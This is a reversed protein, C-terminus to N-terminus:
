IKDAAGMRALEIGMADTLKDFMGFTAFNLSKAALSAMAPILKATIAVSLAVIAAEAIPLDPLVDDLWATFQGLVAVAEGLPPGLVKVLTDFAATVNSIAPVVIDLFAKAIPLFVEGVHAMFQGISDQLNSLKGELTASQSEMLGSFQAFEATVQPWIDGIDATGDKVQEAFQTFKNATEGSIAGMEQLRLAAEGIPRGSQLSSYMRGIWMAVDTFPQSTGAAIDGIMKLSDGTSLADKAFVQLIRSANIVEPLQFPTKAAFDTLMAIRERAKDADGLLVGFQVRYREIEGAGSLMKTTILGFGAALGATLLTTKSLGSGMQAIFSLPSALGQQGMSRANIWAQAAGAAAVGYKAVASEAASAAAVVERADGKIDVRAKARVNDLAVGVQAVSTLM